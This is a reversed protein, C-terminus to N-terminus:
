NINSHSTYLVGLFHSDNLVSVFGYTGVPDCLNPYKTVLKQSVAIYQESVPYLTHMSILTRLVQVIECRAKSSVVGTDIAHQVSGTFSDREPIKFSQLWDSLQSESTGSTTLVNCDQPHMIMYVIKHLGCVVSGVLTLIFVALTPPSFWSM